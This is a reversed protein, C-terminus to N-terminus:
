GDNQSNRANEGGFQKQKIGPVVSHRKAYEIALEAIRTADGMMVIGSSLRESHYAILAALEQPSLDEMIEGKEPMPFGGTIPLPVGDLTLTDYGRYSKFEEPAAYTLEQWESKPTGQDLAFVLALRVDEPLNGELWLRDEGSAWVLRLKSFPAEAESM